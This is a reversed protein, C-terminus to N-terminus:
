NTQATWERLYTEANKGNFAITKEFPDILFPHHSVESSAKVIDGFALSGNTLLKASGYQPFDPIDKLFKKMTPAVELNEGTLKKLLVLFTSWSLKIDMEIQRKKDLIATEIVNKTPLGKCSVSLQNLVLIRGGVSDIALQALEQHDKSDLNTALRTSLYRVPEKEILEGVFVGLTRLDMLNVDVELAARSVSLDILVRACQQEYSYEKCELLVATLVKGSSKSDMKVVIVPPDRKMRGFVSKFFYKGNFSSHIAEALSTRFEEPAKEPDNTTISINVVSWMNRLALKISTTKGSGRPGYVLVTSFMSDDLAMLLTDEINRRRLREGVIGPEEMKQMRLMWVSILIAVPRFYTLAYLSAVVALLTSFFRVTTCYTFQQGVSVM